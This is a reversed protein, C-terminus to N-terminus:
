SRARIYLFSMNQEWKSSLLHLVSHELRNASFFLFLDIADAVAWLKQFDWCSLLQGSYQWKLLCSHGVLKSSMWTCKMNSKSSPLPFCRGATFLILVFQEYLDHTVIPLCPSGYSRNEWLLSFAFHDIFICNDQVLLADIM